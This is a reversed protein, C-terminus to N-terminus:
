YNPLFIGHMSQAVSGETTYKIRAIENLDKADLILLTVNSQSYAGLLTVCLVGDDETQSHPRPVFIPESVFM